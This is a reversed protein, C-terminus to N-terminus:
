RGITLREPAPSWPHERDHPPRLHDLWGAIAHVVHASRVTFMVDFAHQAYPVEAYHVPQRSVARLAAVFHRADEVWALTDHTSSVIFFPPADENVQSLPSALEWLDRRKKPSCKMVVPELFPRMSAWRRVRNQDLFDFVAYMPVCASVSTDVDEFGPQLDARNPTLALLAALHGGASGGTVVVFSPDGGYEEIHERVWAHARKVDILHDPFTARPSLRYSPAVCLWGRSAMENMLPQGQQRKNGIVWAGGHIQLLVPRGRGPTSPRYVDLRNRRYEGYRLNRV